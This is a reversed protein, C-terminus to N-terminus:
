EKKLNDLLKVVQHELFLKCFGGLLGHENGFHSTYDLFPKRRILAELALSEVFYCKLKL